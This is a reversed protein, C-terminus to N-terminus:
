QITKPRDGPTPSSLGNVGVTRVAFYYTGAPLDRIVYERATAPADVSQTLNAPSTGYLIRFSTPAVDGVWQWSVTASGTVPTVPPTTGGARTVRFANSRTYRTIGDRDTLAECAKFARVSDSHQSIITACAKDSCCVFDATGGDRTYEASRAAYAIAGAVCLVVLAKGIARLLM